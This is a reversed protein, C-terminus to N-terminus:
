KLLFKKLYMRIEDKNTKTKWNNDMSKIVNDIRNGIAQKGIRKVSTYLFRTQGTHRINYKNMTMM